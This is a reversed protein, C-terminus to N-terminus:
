LGVLKAQLDFDPVRNRIEEFSGVDIIKGDSLYVVLDANKV